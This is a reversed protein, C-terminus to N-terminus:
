GRTGRRRRGARGSASAAHPRRRRGRRPPRRPASRRRRTPSPALRREATGARARAGSPPSRATRRCRPEARGPPRSRAEAAAHLRDELIGVGREVRAPRHGPRHALREVRIPTPVRASRSRRTSSSSSLTPSDCGRVGVRPGVLERAPLALADRDRRREGSSGSRITASSGTEASSTSTWAWIRLRRQSAGARLEAHREDEDGVVQRDDLVDGVPDGDHVEAPDDLGARRVVTSARGCCGYVRVSSSAIGCGSGRRRSAAPATRPSIGLGSAGGAPQWKWGRQGSAISTQRSSEGAIVANPSFWM